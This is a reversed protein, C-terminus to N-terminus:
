APDILSNAPAPDVAGPVAKDGAAPSPVSACSPDGNAKAISALPFKHTLLEPPAFVTVTKTPNAVGTFVGSSPTGCNGQHKIAAPNAYALTRALRLDKSQM